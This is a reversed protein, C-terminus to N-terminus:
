EKLVRETFMKLFGDADVQMCVYANKNVVIPLREKRFEGITMGSTHKGDCEVVVHTHVLSPILWSQSFSVAVALPDHMHIGRINIDAEKFDLLHRSIDDVFKAVKAGPQKTFQEISSGDFFVQMTVNLPVFILPVDLTLVIETAHPDSWINYEATLTVNGYHDFAGGMIVIEKTLLM